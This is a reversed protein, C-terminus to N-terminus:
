TKKIKLMPVLFSRQVLMCLYLYCRVIDFISPFRHKNKESLCWPQSNREFMYSIHYTDKNKETFNRLIWIGYVQIKEPRLILEIVKFDMWQEYLSIKLTWSLKLARHCEEIRFRWCKEKEFVVFLRQFCIGYLWSYIWGSRRSQRWCCRRTCTDLSSCWCPRNRSAPVHKHYRRCSTRYSSYSSADIM